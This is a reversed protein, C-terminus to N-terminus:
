WVFGIIRRSNCCIFLLLFIAVHSSQIVSQFFKLSRAAIGDANTVTRGFVPFQEKDDFGTSTATASLFPVDNIGTLIALPLTVTTPSSSVVATTPPVSISATRELVSAITQTAVTPSCTSDLLEITLKINCSLLKTDNGNSTTTDQEVNAVQNFIKEGLLPHNQLPVMNNFHYMALLVALAENQAGVITTDDKTYASFSKLEVFRYTVDDYTANNSNSNLTVQYITSNEDTTVMPYLETQNEATTSTVNELLIRLDDYYSPSLVENVEEDNNQLSRYLFANKSYLKTESTMVVRNSATATVGTPTTVVYCCPLILLLLVVHYGRQMLTNQHPPMMLIMTSPVSRTCASHNHHVFSTPTFTTKAKRCPNSRAVTDFHVFM